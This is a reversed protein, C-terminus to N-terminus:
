YDLIVYFKDDYCVRIVQFFLARVEDMVLKKDLVQGFCIMQQLVFQSMLFIYVKDKDFDIEQEIQLELVDKENVNFM